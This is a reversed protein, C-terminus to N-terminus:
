LRVVLSCSASVMVIEAANVGFDGVISGKQRRKEIEPNIWIEFCQNLFRKVGEEDLM